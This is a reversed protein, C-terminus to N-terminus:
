ELVGRGMVGGKESGRKKEVKKLVEKIRGKMKKWEEEMKDGDVEVGGM